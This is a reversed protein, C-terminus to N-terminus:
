AIPEARNLVSRVLPEGCPPPAIYDIRNRDRRDIYLAGDEAIARFNAIGYPFRRRTAPWRGRPTERAPQM